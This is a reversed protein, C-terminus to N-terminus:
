RHDTSVASRRSWAASSRSSSSSATQGSPAPAPAPVSKGIRGPTLAASSPKARLKSLASSATALRSRTSCKRAAIAIADVVSLRSACSRCSQVIRSVSKRASGSSSLPPEDSIGCFFFGYRSSITLPLSACTAPASFAATNADCRVGNLLETSIPVSISAGHACATCANPSLQSRSRSITLPTVPSGAFIRAAASAPSTLAVCTALASTRSVSM